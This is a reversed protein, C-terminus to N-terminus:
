QSPETLIKARQSHYEAPTIEDRRYKELLEGLRQGKSKPFKSEVLPAQPLPPLKGNKAAVDNGERREVELVMKRVAARAAADDGPSLSSPVPAAETRTQAAPPVAPPAETAKPATATTVPQSPAVPRVVTAPSGEAEQLKRRLAERAAANDSPSLPTVPAAATKTGVASPITVVPKAPETAKAEAARRAEADARAKAAAEAKMKAEVEARAKAEAEQRAKEQAKLDVTPTAPLSEAPPPTRPSVARPPTTAPAQDLAKRLAERAAADQDAPL